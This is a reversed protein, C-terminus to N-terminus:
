DHYNSSKQKKEPPLRSHEGARMHGVSQPSPAVGKAPPTDPPDARKLEAREAPSMPDSGSFLERWKKGLEGMDM